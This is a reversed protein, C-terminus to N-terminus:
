PNDDNPITESFKHNGKRWNTRYNILYPPDTVILDISENPMQSMLELTDCKKITDINNLIKM